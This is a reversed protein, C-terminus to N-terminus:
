GDTLLRLLADGPPTGNLVYGGAFQQRYTAPNHSAITRANRWLRDLQRSTSTASAGGVEFIRSVAELVLKIVTPQVGFVCADARALTDRVEGPAAAYAEDVSQAAALVAPELMRVTGFVEGIVQLAVPDEAPPVQPNFLNRQRSRVFDASERLAATAIGALAALHVLQYVAHVATPEQSREVVSGAEVEADNFVTTGSGTLRQGFGDWDNRVQVGPAGTRVMVTVLPAATGASQRCRGGHEPGSAGPKELVGPGAAASVLIWDAFISGTSYYKTGNLVLRGNGDRSVTTAQEAFSGTRESEANGVLAGAALEAIWFKRYADDPHALVSETFGIHGRLAQVLNSDASGLRILLLALTQVSVGYGGDDVPLRLRGFGAERLWGIQEHPLQQRAERELAGARIRDFVPQFHALAEEGTWDGTRNETLAATSM